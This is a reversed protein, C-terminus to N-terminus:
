ANELITELTVGGNRNVDSAIMRRGGPEDFFYHIHMNSRRIQCIRGRKSTTYVLSVPRGDDGAVVARKEIRLTSIDDSDFLGISEGVLADDAYGASMGDVIAKQINDFDSM